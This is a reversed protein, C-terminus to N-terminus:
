ERRVIDVPLRRMWGTWGYPTSGYNWDTRHDTSATVRVRVNNLQNIPVISSATFRGTQIRIRDAGFSFVHVGPDHSLRRNSSSIRNGSSDVIPRRHDRGLPVNVGRIGSVSLELQPATPSSWINQLSLTSM